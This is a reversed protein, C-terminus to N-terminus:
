AAREQVQSATDAIEGLWEAAVRVGHPDHLKRRAHGPLALADIVLARWREPEPWNALVLAAGVEGLRRATARQEDYPRDEAICIFPRDAALVSGVLGDGAAGVVLSAHAIERDPDRVWGLIELNSPPHHPMSCSGIVRWRWQPSCRAAQAFVEGDGAQGGRGVVILITAEANSAKPASAVTVGPLYRTKERVWPPTASIELDQHFPALLAVAGRFAELHPTDTREGNLRVYVVPVSALRALMAVEVSVDIVMLAPRHVDIWRAIVAVRSRIGEHDLPAYHLGDPRCHSGDAGDFAGTDLRDDALDIGQSGVGTGLLVVRGCSANAIARARALHGAGHHHVYYGIPRPTM